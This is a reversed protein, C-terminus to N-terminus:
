LGPGAGTRKEDQLIEDLMEKVRGRMASLEEDVIERDNEFEPHKAVLESLQKLEASLQKSDLKSDRASIQYASLLGILVALGVFHNKKM